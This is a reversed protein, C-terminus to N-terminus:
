GFPYERREAQRAAERRQQALEARREAEQEKYDALEDESPKRLPREDWLPRSFRDLDPENM